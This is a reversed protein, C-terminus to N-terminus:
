AIHPGMARNELLALNQADIFDDNLGTFSGAGLIVLTKFQAQGKGFGIGGGCRLHAVLQITEGGAHTLHVIRRRTRKPV